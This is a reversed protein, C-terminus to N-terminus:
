GTRRNKRHTQSQARHSQRKKRRRHCYRRDLAARPRPQRPGPADDVRCGPGASGGRLHERVVDEPLANFLVIQSRSRITPLLDQPSATIMVLYSEPPPEELTKLLCNQAPGEMLDADDIIFWKGRGRFSRKYIKAEKGTDTDGTIEGRIVDIGLTTGKSKGTKDHYRILEKTIVHLDPHSDMAVARCSECVGCPLRLMFDAPLPPVARGNPRTQPADCLMTRALEVALLGKGVGPPGAFIWTHALRATRIARQLLAIARPQGQVNLMPVSYVAPPEAAM